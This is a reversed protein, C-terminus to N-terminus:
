IVKNTGLAWAAKLSNATPKAFPVIKNATSDTARLEFLKNGALEYKTKNAADVKKEIAVTFYFKFVIKGTADTTLPAGTRIANAISPKPDVPICEASLDQGEYYFKHVTNPKMGTCTITFVQSTITANNVVPAQPKPTSSNSGGGGGSSYPGVSPGTFSSGTTTGTVVPM